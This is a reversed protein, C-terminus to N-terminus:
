HSLGNGNLLASQEKKGEKEEREVETQRGRNLSNWRESEEGERKKEKEDGAIDQCKQVHKKKTHWVLSKM